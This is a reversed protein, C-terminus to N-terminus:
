AVGCVMVATLVPTRTGRILLAASSERRDVANREYGQVVSPTGRQRQGTSSKCIHM